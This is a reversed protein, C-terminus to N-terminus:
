SPSNSSTFVSAPSRSTGNSLCPNIFLARISLHFALLCRLGSSRTKEVRLPPTKPLRLRSRWILAAAGFNAHGLVDVALTPPFLSHVRDGAGYFRNGSGSLICFVCSRILGFREAVFPHGKPHGPPFRLNCTTSSYQDPLSSKFRRGGPGSTHLKTQLQNTQNRKRILSRLEFAGKAGWTIQLRSHLIQSLSFAM